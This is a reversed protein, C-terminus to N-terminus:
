ARHGTNVTRLQNVNDATSHFYQISPAPGPSIIHHRRATGLPPNKHRAISELLKEIALTDLVHDDRMRDSIGRLPNGSERVYGPLFERFCDDDLDITGECHSNHGSRALDIKRQQFCGNMCIVRFEGRLHFELAPKRIAFRTGHWWKPIQVLHSDERVHAEGM